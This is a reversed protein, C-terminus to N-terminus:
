TFGGRPRNLRVWARNMGAPPPAFLPLGLVRSSVTNMRNMVGALGVQGLDGDFPPDGTIGLTAMDVNGAGARIVADLAAKVVDAWHGSDIQTQAWTNADQQTPPATPNIGNLGRFQSWESEIATVPGGGGGLRIDGNQCAHISTWSSFGAWYREAGPIGM